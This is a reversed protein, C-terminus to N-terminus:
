APGSLRRSRSGGRYQERLAAPIPGLLDVWATPGHPHFIRLYDCFVGPGYLAAFQKYDDPLRTGVASEVAAWDVM